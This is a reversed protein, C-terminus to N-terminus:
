CLLIAAQLSKTKAKFLPGHRQAILTLVQWYCVLGTFVAILIALFKKMPLLDKASSRSGVLLQLGM